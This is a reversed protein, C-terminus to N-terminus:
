RVGKDAGRLSLPVAPTSGSVKINELIRDALQSVYPSPKPPEAQRAGATKGAEKPPKSSPTYHHNPIMELQLCATLASTFGAALPYVSVVLGTVDVQVSDSLIATWPIRICLERIFGRKVHLPLNLSELEDTNLEVNHMTAHGQWLSIRLEEPKIGKVYKHAYYKVIGWVVNEFM